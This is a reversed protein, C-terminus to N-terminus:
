RFRTLKNVTAEDVGQWFKDWSDFRHPLRAKQDAFTGSPWNQFSPGQPRALVDASYWHEELRRTFYWKDDRREYTDFYCIAMVVWSDGDEHEARCYTRGTAHDVDIFDIQQGCIQHHSRYFNTLAGSIFKKLADRGRENRGVQVDEVFLNVWGDVDRSDVAIAYRIPLQQIAQYSEIRDIRRLLDAENTM